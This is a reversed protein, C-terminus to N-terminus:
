LDEKWVHYRWRLADGIFECLLRPNKRVAALWYSPEGNGQSLHESHLLPLAYCDSPKLGMGGDTGWRFHAPDVTENDNGRRGTVICPQERLWKLYAPDRLPPNKPCATM